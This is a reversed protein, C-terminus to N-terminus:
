IKETLKNKLRAVRRDLSFIIRGILMGFAGLTVLPLIHFIFIHNPDEITCNFELFVSGVVGSAVFCLAAALRSSYPSFSQLLACLLLTPLIAFLALVTSCELGKGSFPQESYSFEQYALLSAILLTSLIALWKMKQLYNSYSNGASELIAVFGLLFATFILLLTRLGKFEGYQNFDSIIEYKGFLIGVGVTVIIILAWVLLRSFLSLRLASSKEQVLREILKETEM